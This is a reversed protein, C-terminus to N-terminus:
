VLAATIGLHAAPGFCRTRERPVKPCCVLGTTTIWLESFTPTYLTLEHPPVWLSVSYAPGSIMGQPLQIGSKGDLLVAKGSGGETYTVAGGDRDIRDGIVVGNAFVVKHAKLDNEFPYQATLTATEYPSVTINFIKHKNSGGKTITATLTTSTAKEGIAPRKVEGTASIVNPDSTKWTISTQRSGEKPLTLNAVMRSTDGLELERYVSEVVTADSSNPLQSGWAM